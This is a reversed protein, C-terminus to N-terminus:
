KSEMYGNNYYGKRIINGNSDREVYAGDRKDNKYTGEFRIGDSSEEICKGHRM